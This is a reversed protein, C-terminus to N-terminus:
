HELFVQAHSADADGARGPAAEVAISQTPVGEHNLVQAVAKARTLALNFQALQQQAAITGSAPEAHGIVRLAGGRDHQMAAIESLQNREQDSLDASGSAFAITAVPV